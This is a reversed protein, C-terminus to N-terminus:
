ITGPYTKALRGVPLRDVDPALDLALRGSSANPEAGHNLGAHVHSVDGTGLLDTSSVPLQEALHSSQHRHHLDARQDVRPHKHLDLDHRVDATLRGGAAVTLALATIM